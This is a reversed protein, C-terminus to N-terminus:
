GGQIVLHRVGIRLIVECTLILGVAWLAQVALAVLLDPGTLLGLYVEVVTNVMAPFPTLYCIRVFWDPFFRLPVYFGSLVWALGFAFRGVGRADPTWFAALNVLFRWGFSVLLSLILALTLAAWQVWGTPVTIKYFLAYLLLMPVGRWLLGTLARGVDRALWFPFLHLPKLLDGAIEGRYITNMLDYWGFITLYAIIAQTLGTYTIADQLSVGAVEQRAGYLAIFVAARLLGFFANTTLGALHAARYTMTRRFSLAILHWYVAMSSDTPIPTRIRARNVLNPSVM